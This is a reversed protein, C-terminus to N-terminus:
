LKSLQKELELLYWNSSSEKKAESLRDVTLSGCTNTKILELFQKENISGESSLLKATQLLLKKNKKLIKKTESELYEMETRIESQIDEDNFGCPVGDPSTQVKLNAYCYPNFYGGSYAVDTLTSWASIIDSSSGCLTRDADFILSEACWGGLATMIDNKIDQKSPIENVKDKDYTICFGGRDSSVAVIESPLKGTLYSFLIAHGAEHVSNIVCTKRNEPDRLEGLSLQQPIIEEQLKNISRYSIVINCEKKKFNETETYIDVRWDDEKKKDDLFIIIRSFLPTLFTSITTLLPRVGQVPYVGESYLLKKFSDQVNIGIGYSSKFENCIREVEKNIIEEFCKKNLVPYKIISNGFRAIQESRFRGKLATKIDSISIKSTEDFFIDADLDPNIDGCVKFAEDLNGIVFVLCKSCNITRPTMILDRYEVLLDYIDSVNNCSILKKIFNDSMERNLVKSKRVLTRIIRDEVVKVPRYPDKDLTKMGDDMYNPESEVLQGNIIDRDYYFLGLADILKKVDDKDNITYKNDVKVDPNNKVWDGFDEIFNNVRSIDWRDTDTMEIIGDDIISWIPRLNPKNQEEGADDITRAFQFEDFVYVMNQSISDLATECDTTNFFNNIKNAVSNEDKDSECCDVFITNNIVELKQLLSKVVSTKGTGTMGWLSVVVPRKIIEPTIYWPSISKGIEDIINDLGIFETKLENLAKELTKIRDSKNM